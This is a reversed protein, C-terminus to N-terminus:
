RKRRAKPRYLGAAFEEFTKGKGIAAHLRRQAEPTMADFQEGFTSWGPKRKSM